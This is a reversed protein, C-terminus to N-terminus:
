RSRRLRSYQKSGQSDPHGECGPAGHCVHAREHIPRFVGRLQGNAIRGCRPASRAGHDLKGCPSRVAGADRAPAFSVNVNSVRLERNPVALTPLAGLRPAPSLEETRGPVVVAEPLPPKPLDLAQRAWFALPPLTAPVVPNPRFEPQVIAPADVAKEIPRPLQLVAPVEPARFARGDVGPRQAPAGAPRAVPTPASKTKSASAQFYAGPQAERM